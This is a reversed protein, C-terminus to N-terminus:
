KKLSSTVNKVYLPRVHSEVRCNAFKFTEAHKRKANALRDDSNAASTAQKKKKRHRVSLSWYNVKYPSERKAMWKEDDDAKLSNTKISTLGRGGENGRM